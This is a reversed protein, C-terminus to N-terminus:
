CAGPNNGTHGSSTKLDGPATQQKTLQRYRDQKILSSLEPNSVIVQASFGQRLADALADIARGSDGLANWVIASQYKIDLNEPALEISRRLALLAQDNRNQYARALAITLWARADRPNVVLSKHALDSARSFIENTGEDHRYLQRRSNGLRSWGQYSAPIKDVAQQHLLFAQEFDALHYYVDGLSALAAATPKLELSHRYAAIAATFDGKMFLTMGLSSYVEVNDPTLDIAKRFWRLAKDYQGRSLYLKGLESYNLWYGPHLAVARGYTALAKDVQNLDLYVRSLGRYAQDSRPDLKMANQYASVANDYQGKGFYLRGLALQVDVLQPDISLAGECSQEARAVSDDTPNHEYELWYLECLGALARAFRPDVHLASEFLKRAYELNRAPGPLNLYERAQLYYAYARNDETLVPRVVEMDNLALIGALDSVVADALEDQLHFLNARDGQVVDGALEVGDAINIIRYTARLDTGAQQLSVSLRVNAGPRNDEPVLYLGPLSALQSKVADEVGHNLYEPLKDPNLNRFNAVSLYSVNEDLIVETESAFFWLYSVIVVLLALLPTSRNKVGTIFQHMYRHFGLRTCWRKPLVAYLKIRNDINKLSRHGLNVFSANTKDHVYQYVLESLCIGGPKALAMIRAAINVDNGYVHRSNIQVEGLHLGIRLSCRDDEGTFKAQLERAAQFASHAGHFYAFLEGSKLELLYGRHKQILDNIPRQLKELRCAALPADKKRSQVATGAFLLTALRGHAGPM